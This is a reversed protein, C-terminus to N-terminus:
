RNWFGLVTDGDRVSDGVSDGDGDRVSDGDMVSDGDRVGDRDLLVTRRWSHLVQFPASGTRRRRKVRSM